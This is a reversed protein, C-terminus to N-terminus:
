PDLGVGRMTLVFTDVTPPELRGDWVFSLDACVSGVEQGRVYYRACGDCEPSDPSESSSLFVMDLWTGDTLRLSLSGFPELACNNDGDDQSWSVAASLADIRDDLVPGMLYAETALTLDRTDGGHTTLTGNARWGNPTDGGDFSASGTAVVDIDSTYTWKYTERGIEVELTEDQDGELAYLPSLGESVSAAGHLIRRATAKGPPSGGLEGFVEVQALWWLWGDFVVGSSTTCADEWGWGGIQDSPYSPVEGAYVDPCGEEAYGLAEGAGVWPQHGTIEFALALGDQVLLALEADTLAPLELVEPEGLDDPGLGGSEVPPDECALLLLLLAMM